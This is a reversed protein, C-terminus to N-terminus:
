EDWCVEEGWFVPGETCVRSHEKNGNKDRTVCVCGLCAGIGCAMREELSVQCPVSNSECLVAVKKLMPKPGCAFVIDPRKDKLYEAVLDTIFGKYGISGDETAVKIDAVKRRMTELLFAEDKFGTFAVAKKGYVDALAVLPAIGIGGGVVAVEDYEGNIKFGNGLPGLVDLTDGRSVTSLFETGQGLVRYVLVIEGERELKYCLSLPRRLLPFKNGGCKIYFFQGPLVRTSLEPNYLKLKYIGKAISSNEVVSLMENEKM